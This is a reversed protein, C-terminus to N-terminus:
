VTHYCNNNRRQQNIDSPIRISMKEKPTGGTYGTFRSSFVYEFRFQKTQLQYVATRIYIAVVNKNQM